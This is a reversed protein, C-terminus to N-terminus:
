EAGATGRFGQDKSSVPAARLSSEKELVLPPLPCPHPAAREAARAAVAADTRYHSRFFPGYDSGCTTARRRAAADRESLAEPM